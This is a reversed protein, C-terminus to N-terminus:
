GGRGNCFAEALEENTYEHKGDEKPLDHMPEIWKKYCEQFIDKTMVVETKYIPAYIDDMGFMPTHKVVDDGEIEFYIEDNKM